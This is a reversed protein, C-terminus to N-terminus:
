HTHDQQDAWRGHLDEEHQRVWRRYESTNPEPPNWTVYGHADLMHQVLARGRLPKSPAM